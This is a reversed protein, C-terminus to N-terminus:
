STRQTNHATSSKKKDKEYTRVAARRFAIGILFYVLVGIISWVLEIEVESNESGTGLLAITAVSGFGILTLLITKKHNPTGQPNSTKFGWYIMGASIAFITGSILIDEKSSIM